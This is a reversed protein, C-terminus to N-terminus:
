GKTMVFETGMAWLGRGPPLFKMNFILDYMIQASQKAKRESWPVKITQCHLKQILYCGEVVRQITQWWEETKGKSIPRSYTRKFLFYGLPGWDPQKRKYKNLFNETLHFELGNYDM